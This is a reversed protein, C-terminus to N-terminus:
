RFSFSHVYLHPAFIINASVNKARSVLYEGRRVPHVSSIRRHPRVWWFINLRTHLYVSQCPYLTLFCQNTSPPLPSSWTAWHCHRHSFHALTTNLLPLLADIPLLARSRVPLLSSRFYVSLLVKNREDGEGRVLDTKKFVSLPSVLYEGRRVRHVSSIRTSSM